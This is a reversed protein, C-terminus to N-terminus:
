LAAINVPGSAPITWSNIFYGPRMRFPITPDTVDAEYEVTYPVGNSPALTMEIDGSEPIDYTVTIPIVLHCHDRIFNKPKIHLRGSTVKLGTDADYLSGTIAIFVALCPDVTVEILPGDDTGEGLGSVGDGGYTRTGYCGASDTSRVTFTVAGLTTPTGSLVGASSLALGAPLAGAVVTFVFPASLPAGTSLLNVTEFLEGRYMIPLTSPAITITPCAYTFDDILLSAAGAVVYVHVTAETHAPTVVDITTDNVITFAVSVTGFRVDTVTTFGKGTITVTEGGHVFGTNPTLGFTAADTWTLEYTLYQIGLSGSLNQDVRILRDYPGGGNTGISSDADQNSDDGIASTLNHWHLVGHSFAALFATKTFPPPSPPPVFSTTKILVGDNGDVLKDSQCFLTAGPFGSTSGTDTDLRDEAIGADFATLKVRAHTSCAVSYGGVPSAPGTVYTWLWDSHSVGVRTARVSLSTIIATSPIMSLDVTGSGSGIARSRLLIGFGGGPPDGSLSSTGSYSLQVLGPSANTFTIRLDADSFSGAWATSYADSRTLDIITIM